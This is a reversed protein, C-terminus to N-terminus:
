VIFQMTENKLFCKMLVVVKTNESIDKEEEKSSCATFSNALSGPM